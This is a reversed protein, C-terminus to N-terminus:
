KEIDKGHIHARLVEKKVQSSQTKLLLKGKGIGKKKPM